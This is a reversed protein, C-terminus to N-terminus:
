ASTPWKGRAYQIPWTVDDGLEAAARLPWYPDRLGARGITIVEAAGSQLIQEAQKAETIQGVTSVPEDVAGAIAAALPVQYGPGSPITVGTILGGSSIDFLDVGLESCWKAVETTQAVDWGDERYDTASFRVMLPMGAPMVGRIAKVIDLLLRARNELSGGYQDTRQNTIPSLFQHVLYGHAAHIELADFGARIANEAATRWQSVIMPLESTELERPAAYGTFAENTASVTTWGGDELPVSGSGSQARYTSAKRGAHALQLASKSGSYRIADTIRRWGRIQEENYIGPCWPTIRGEPAVATAEAVVLSFGGVARSAYHILQWESPVGDRGECSYMCMPALFVRNALTLERLTIPTFLKSM